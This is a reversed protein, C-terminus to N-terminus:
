FLQLTIKNCRKLAHAELISIFNFFTHYQCETFSIKIYCFPLFMCSDFRPRCFSYSILAAAAKQFPWIEVTM